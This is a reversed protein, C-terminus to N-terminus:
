QKKTPYCNKGAELSALISDLVNPVMYLVIRDNINLYQNLVPNKNFLQNAYISYSNIICFKSYANSNPFITKYTSNLYNYALKQNYPKFAIQSITCFYILASMKVEPKGTKYDYKQIESIVNTYFESMDTITPKDKIYIMANIAANWISPLSTPGSMITLQPVTKVPTTTSSPSFTPDSFAPLLTMLPIEPVVYDPSDPSLLNPPITADVWTPGDDGETQTPDTPGTTPIDGSSSSDYSIKFGTSQSVLYNLINSPYNYNPIEIPVPPSPKRHRYPRSHGGGM